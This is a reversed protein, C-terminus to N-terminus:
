NRDCLPGAKIQILMFAFVMPGGKWTPVKEETKTACHIRRCIFGLVASVFIPTGIALTTM